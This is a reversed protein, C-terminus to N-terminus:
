DLPRVIYINYVADNGPDGSFNVRVTGDLPISAHTVFVVNTGPDVIHAICFYGLKAASVSIDRTAAGATSTFQKAYIMPHHRSLTDANSDKRVSM